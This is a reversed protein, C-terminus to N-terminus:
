LCDRFATRESEKGRAKRDDKSSLVVQNMGMGREKLVAPQAEEREPKVRQEENLVEDQVASGFVFVFALRRGIRLSVTEESRWRSDSRLYGNRAIYM